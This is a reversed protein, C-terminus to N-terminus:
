GLARLSEITNSEEEVDGKKKKKRETLLGAEEIL